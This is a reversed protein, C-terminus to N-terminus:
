NMLLGGGGRLVVRFVGIRKLGGGSSPEVCDVLEAEFGMSKVLYAFDEVWDRVGCSNCFSGTFEVVAIAAESDERLELLRAVAEPSRFKNYLSVADSLLEQLFAKSVAGAVANM